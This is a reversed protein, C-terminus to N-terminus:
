EGCHGISNSVRTVVAGFQAFVEMFRAREPGFYIFVSGSNPSKGGGDPQWYHIRPCSFCLLYDWLPQFWKTDTAHANVLLIAASVAGEQYSQVLKGVFDPGAKGWPPNLWLRGHWDQALGDDDITYFRAAKVVENAAPHSAPDLDIEGLVSRAAEIHEALTYYENSDSSVQAEGSKASAYALLGKTTAEADASAVEEMYRSVVTEPVEAVSRWRSADQKTVGIEELAEGYESVEDAARVLNKNKAPRGGGKGPKKTLKDIIESAKRKALTQIEWAYNRAENSLKQARAYERAALAKDHILKVESLTRCEALYARAHDLRALPNSTEPEPILISGTV